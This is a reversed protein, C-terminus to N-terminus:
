HGTLLALTIAEVGGILLVAILPSFDLGGFAPLRRRIPRLIPDTAGNLLITVPAPARFGSFWSLIARAIIALLIVQALVTVLFSITM